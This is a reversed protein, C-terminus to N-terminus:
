GAKAISFVSAQPYRVNAANIYDDIYKQDTRFDKLAELGKTAEKLNSNELALTRIMDESCKTKSGPDLLLARM